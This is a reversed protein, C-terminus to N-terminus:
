PAEGKPIKVELVGHECKASIENTKVYPPLSIARSFLGYHREQLHTSCDKYKEDPKTEGSIYLVNDRIDVNIQEKSVGPLETDVVFEKENERVDILPVWSTHNGRNTLGGTRRATNLDKFFDNFLNSVSSEFRGFDRDWGNSM